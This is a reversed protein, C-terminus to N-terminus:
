LFNCESLVVAFTFFWFKGNSPVTFLTADIIEGVSACGTYNLQCHKNKLGKDHCYSLKSLQALIFFFM